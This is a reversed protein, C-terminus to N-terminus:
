KEMKKSEASFFRWKFLILYLAGVTICSDAINFIPRFFIFQEGGNIPFWDPLTTNIIPFYLMDVVKGLMFKGYGQGMPVLDAVTGMTSQEFILGYFMCDIINGLAGVMIATLGVLVGMPVSDRRLLSRIYYFMVGFLIIRFTTLLYKGLEGGFSMGFAMGENEIFLIQFWQGLVPISEGLHMNTKVLIKSVQDIVLLLIAFVALILQKWSRSLAM